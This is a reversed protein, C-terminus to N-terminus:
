DFRIVHEKACKMRQVYPAMNVATIWPAENIASLFVASSELFYLPGKFGLSNNESVSIYCTLLATLHVTDSSIAQTIKPQYNAEAWLRIKEGFVLAGEALLIASRRLMGTNKNETLISDLLYTAGFKLAQGHMLWLKMRECQRLSNNALEAEIEILISTMGNEDKRKKTSMRTSVLLNESESARLSFTIAKQMLVGDAIVTVKAGVLSGSINPNSYSGQVKIDIQILDANPPPVMRQNYFYGINAVPGIVQELASTQFTDLRSFANAQSSEPELGALNGGRKTCLELLTVPEEDFDHPDMEVAIRLRDIYQNVCIRLDLSIRRIEGSLLSVPSAFTPTLELEEQSECNRKANETSEM